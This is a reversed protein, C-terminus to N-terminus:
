NRCARRRRGRPGQWCGLVRRRRIVLNTSALEFAIAVIFRAGKRWRRGVRRSRLTPARPRPLAWAPPWRWRGRAPPHVPHAGHTWGMEPPWFGTFDRRAFLHEGIARWLGLQQPWDHPPALPLVPHYYATGLIDIIRTNQLHWLLSGCDVLGYARQQFGPDALAELLTGVALSSHPWHGRLAVPVQPHPRDRVTDRGAAWPDAGLLNDLNGALQHLNLVLAFAIDTM